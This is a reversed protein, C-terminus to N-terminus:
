QERSVQQPRALGQLVRSVCRDRDTVLARLPPREQRQRRHLGEDVRV